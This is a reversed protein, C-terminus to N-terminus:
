PVPDRPAEGHLVRLIEEAPRTRDEFDSEISYWAAHPTLIVNPLSALEEPVNPETDLVDLGAGTITGGKLCAILAQTDILGGRSVNVLIPQRTFQRMVEASLINETEPTIPCHLSIIDSQYRVEDLTARHVDLRTFFDDAVFPDYAIITPVIVKMKTAFRRGILGFGILGLTLVSLRRMPGALTDVWKGALINRHHQLLRRQVAMLLAVAHDAVEETCYDPLNCVEIGYRRCASVDIMDYGVGARAIIKCQKLNRAVNETIKAYINIIGLSDHAAEIVEEETSCQVSVFEYGADRIIKREIVPEYDPNIIVIKGKTAKVEM